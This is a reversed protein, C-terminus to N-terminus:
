NQSGGLLTRVQKYIDWRVLVLASFAISIIGEDLDNAWCHQPLPPPLLLIPWPAPPQQERKIKEKHQTATRHKKKMHHLLYKKGVVVMM